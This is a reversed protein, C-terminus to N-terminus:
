SIDELELWVIAFKLKKRITTYYKMVYLVIEKIM